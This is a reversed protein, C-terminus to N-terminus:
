GNTFSLPNQYPNFKLLNNAEADLDKYDDFNLHAATLVNQPRTAKQKNSLSVRVDDLYDLTNAISNLINMRFENNMLLSQPHYRNLSVTNYLTSATNRLDGLQDESNVPTNAILFSSTLFRNALFMAHSLLLSNKGRENRSNAVGPAFSPELSLDEVSEGPNLLRAADGENLGFQRFFNVGKDYLLSNQLVGLYTFPNSANLVTDSVYAPLTLLSNGADVVESIAGRAESTGSVFLQTVNVVPNVKARIRNQIDARTERLRDVVEVGQAVLNKAKSVGAKASNNFLETEAEDLNNVADRAQNEAAQARNLVDQAANISKKLPPNIVKPVTRRKRKNKNNSFAVLVCSFRYIGLLQVSTSLMPQILKCEWKGHYSSVFTRTLGDRSYQILRDLDKKSDIALDLKFSPKKPGQNILKRESTNPYELIQNKIGFDAQQEHGIIRLSVDGFRAEPTDKALVRDETRTQVIAM